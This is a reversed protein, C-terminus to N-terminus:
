FIGKMFMRAMLYILVLFVFVGLVRGITDAVAASQTIQQLGFLIPLSVGIIVIAWFPNFLSKRREPTSVVPTPEYLIPTPDHLVVGVPSEAVLVNDYGCYRCVRNAVTIPGGCHACKLEETSM